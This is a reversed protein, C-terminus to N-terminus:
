KIKLLIFVNVNTILSTLCYSIGINIRKLSYSVGIVGGLNGYGWMVDGDYSSENESLLTLSDIGQQKLYTSKTIKGKFKEYEFSSIGAIFIQVKNFNYAIKLGSDDILRNYNEGSTHSFCFTDKSTESPINLIEVGLM